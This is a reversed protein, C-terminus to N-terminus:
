YNKITKRKNRKNDTAHYRRKTQKREFEPPLSKETIKFFDQLLLMTKKSVIKDIEYEEKSKESYSYTFHKLYKESFLKFDDIGKDGDCIKRILDSSLFREIMIQFSLNYIYPNVKIYYVNDGMMEPHFMDDLFCIETNKPLRTCSIFDDMTKEHTTRSMEIRKGNVKFASIIQDFLTYHIKEHFYDVINNVWFQPGQNNTYIMVAACEKKEKKHKLFNLISYINPRIFEPFLDLLDYFDQQSKLLSEEKQKQKCYIQLLEWFKGLEFFYGLTEDLDFVVVKM